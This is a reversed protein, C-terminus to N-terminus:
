KAWPEGPRRIGLIAMKRNREADQHMARAEAQYILHDVNQRWTLEPVTIGTVKTVYPSDRLPDPNQADLAFQVLDQPTFFSGGNVTGDPDVFEFWAGFQPYVDGDHNWDATHEVFLTMQRAIKGNSYHVTHDTKNEDVFINRSFVGIEKNWGSHNVYM